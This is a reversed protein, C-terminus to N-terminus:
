LLYVTFGLALLISLAFTSMVLMPLYRDLERGEHTLVGKVHIIFLPLTLM